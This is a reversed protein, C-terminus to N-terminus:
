TATRVIRRHARNRGPRLDQVCTLQHADLFAPGRKIIVQAVNLLVRWPWAGPFRELRALPSSDHDLIVYGLQQRRIIRCGRPAHRGSNDRYIRILQRM